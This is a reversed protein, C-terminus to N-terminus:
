GTLVGSKLVARAVDRMNFRGDIRFEDIEGYAAYAELPNTDTQSTLGTMIASAVVDVPDLPTPLTRVLIMAEDALKTKTWHLREWRETFDFPRGQMEEIRAIIQDKTRRMFYRHDLTAYTITVSM